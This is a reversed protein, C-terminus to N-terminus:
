DIAAMLEVVRDLFADVQAEEYGEPGVAPRFVARRVSDVSLPKDHELYSV